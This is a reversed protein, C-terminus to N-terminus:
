GNAILDLTCRLVDQGGIAYRAIGRVGYDISNITLIDNVLIDKHGDTTFEYAQGFVGLAQTQQNAQLPAFYGRVGDGQSAYSSKGGSYAELRKQTATTNYNFRMISIPSLQRINSNFKPGM